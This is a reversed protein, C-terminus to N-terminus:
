LSYYSHQVHQIAGQQTTTLAVEIHSQHLDETPVTNPPLVKNMLLVDCTLQM